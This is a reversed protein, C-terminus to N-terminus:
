NMVAWGDSGKIFRVQQANKQRGLMPQEIDTEVNCLHVDGESECSLIKVSHVKIGGISEMNPLQALQKEYAAKADSDSPGSSCATLGLALFSAAVFFRINM